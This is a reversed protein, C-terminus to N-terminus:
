NCKESFTFSSLKLVKSNNLASLILKLSHCEKIKRFFSSKPGENLKERLVSKKRIVRLRADSRLNGNSCSDTLESEVQTRLVKSKKKLSEFNSKLKDSTKKFDADLRKMLKDSESGGVSHSNINVSMKIYFIVSLRKERHLLRDFSM